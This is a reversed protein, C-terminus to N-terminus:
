TELSLGNWDPNPAFLTSDDDDINDLLNTRLGQSMPSDQPPIFLQQGQGPLSNTWDMSTPNLFGSQTWQQQGQQVSHSVSSNMIMPTGFFMNPHILDAPSPGFPGLPDLQQQIDQLGMEPQQQHQQLQANQLGMEPQQQHQQHQADQFGMGPQQQHGYQINQRTLELLHQHLQQLNQPGIEHPRQHQQQANQFGMGRPQQRQQQADPARMGPPPQPHKQRAKPVGLKRKQGRNEPRPQAHQQPQNHPHQGVEFGPDHQLYSPLHQKSFHLSGHQMEGSPPTPPLHTPQASGFSGTSDERKMEEAKTEEAKMAEAKVAEAIMRDEQQRRNMLSQDLRNLDEEFPGEDDDEDLKLAGLRELIDHTYPHLGEVHKELPGGPFEGGNNVIDYLTQLGKVLQKQQRELTETYGKPHVKDTARKNKGYECPMNETKCRECQHAGDCKSKKLRCRDCAKCVRKRIPTEHPPAEPPPTRTEM